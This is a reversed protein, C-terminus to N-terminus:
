GLLLSAAIFWMVVGIVADLIKWSVPKAFFPILIRAGYGLAFFFVFSALVAGGTFQQRPAPSIAHIRLGAVGRHGFVRPSEALNVRPLHRGRARSLATPM